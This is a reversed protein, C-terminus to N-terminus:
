LENPLIEDEAERRTIRMVEQLALDSKAAIQKCSEYEPSVSIIKGQFRKIKVLVSGLTTQVVGQERQVEHRRIPVVRVGLTSTERFVFELVSHEQAAAVLISLKTGLRGKKMQIPTGWADKAGLALLKEQVYALIEPTTDDLNTELLLLESTDTEGTVDGIWVALANPYRPHDRKGLGYGIRDLTMVNQTFTALTTLIAVGTPTVTEGANLVDGPPPGIPAKADVMLAASAPSLGSMVGHESDFVGSGVPFPSAYVQDIGLLDFGIIAGCVDILTDLSGLEHLQVESDKDIKSKHAVAEAAGLREFVRRAKDKQTISLMSSDIVDVFERWRSIRPVNAEVHVTVQTGEIGGRKGLEATLSFGEVKLKRLEQTLVDLSLGADLLSGIIMDGSAGGICNFFAIRM